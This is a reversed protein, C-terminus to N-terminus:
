RSGTRAIVEDLAAVAEAMRTKLTAHRRALSEAEAARALVAREIRAIAREIREVAPPTESMKGRIPM